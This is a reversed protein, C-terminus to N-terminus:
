LSMYVGKRIPWPFQHLLHYPLLRQLKLILLQSPITSLSSLISRYHGQEQTSNKMPTVVPQFLCKLLRSEVSAIFCTTCAICAFITICMFSFFNNHINWEADWAIYVISLLDNDLNLKKRQGNLYKLINGTKRVGQRSWHNWELKPEGWRLWAKSDFDQVIMFLYIHLIFTQFNLKSINNKVPIYLFTGSQRLLPYWHM